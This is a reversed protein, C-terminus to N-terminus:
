KSKINIEEYEKYEGVITINPYEYLDIKTGDELILKPRLMQGTTNDYVIGIRGDSLELKSGKPYVAINHIFAKILNLNYRTGCNGMMYEIAEPATIREGNKNKSTLLIDYDDAIHLIKAFIHIKSKDLNKLPCNNGNEDTKHFLIAARVRSSILSSDKLLNYSFVPALEETYEIKDKPLDLQELVKRDACRKGVDHLLAAVALEVLSSRTIRKGNEDTAFKGMEVAIEAVSVAHQYEYNKQNRVEILDFPTNNNELIYDVIDKASEIISIIDLKQVANAAKNKIAIPVADNLVIGETEKTEICINMFGMEKLKNLVTDTLKAGEQILMRNKEDYIRKALIMGSTAKTIDIQKM